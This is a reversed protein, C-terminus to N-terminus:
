GSRSGLERDIMLLAPGSDGVMELNGKIGQVSSEEEVQETVFWQLFVCTAHDKEGAALNALQNILESIKCEHQYAADFAALPSDWESPPTAIQSLVVKGGREVIYDFFKMAHVNEEEAQQRMWKAMGDFGSTNFDASMSLYLYASFLEENLQKNFADQITTSLM